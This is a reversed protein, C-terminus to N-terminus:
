ARRGKEAAAAAEEAEAKALAALDEESLVRAMLKPEIGIQACRKAAAEPSSYPGSAAWRRAKRYIVFITM